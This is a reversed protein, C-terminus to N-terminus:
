GDLAGICGNFIGHSSHNEIKAAAVKLEWVSM